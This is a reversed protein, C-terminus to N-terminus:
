NGYKKLKNYRNTVLASILICMYMPSRELFYSYYYMLPIWALMFAFAINGICKDIICSSRKILFMSRIIILIVLLYFIIVGIIGNELYIINMSSFQYGFNYGYQKYMNTKYLTFVEKGIQNANREYYWNENPMSSGIGLGFIKKSTDTLIYQHTYLINELRGLEFEHNNTKMTYNIVNQKIKDLKFFNKFEPEVSILINIAITSMVIVSITLKVMFIINKKNVLLIVGLIIPMLIFALKIEGLGFLIFIIITSLISYKSKIERNLCLVIIWIYIILIFLFFTQVSSIGFIGSFDDQHFKIALIPLPILNCIILIILDEKKFIETSNSLIIYVPVFRLYIRICMIYNIFDIDGVLYVIISISIFILIVIFIKDKLVKNYKKFNIIIKFILIISIVDVTYVVSLPVNLSPKSRWLFEYFFSFSLLLVIQNYVCEFETLLCIYVLYVLVIPIWIYRISQINSLLIMILFICNILICKIPKKYRIILNKM